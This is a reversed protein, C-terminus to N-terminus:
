GVGSWAATNTGVDNLAFGRSPYVINWVVFATSGTRSQEKIEFGDSNLAGVTDLRSAPVKRRPGHASLVDAVSRGVSPSSAHGLPSTGTARRETLVPRISDFNSTGHSGSLSRTACGHARDRLVACGTCLPPDQLSITYRCPPGNPLAKVESFWPEDCFGPVHQNLSPKIRFHVSDCRALYM